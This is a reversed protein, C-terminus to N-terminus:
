CQSNFELLNYIIALITITIHPFRSDIRSFHAKDLGHLCDFRPFALDDLRSRGETPKRTRNGLVHDRGWRCKAQWQRQALIVTSTSGHVRGVRKVQIVVVTILIVVRGVMPEYRGIQHGWHRWRWWWSAVESLYSRHIVWLIIPLSFILNYPERPPLPFNNTEEQTVEFSIQKVRKQPYKEMWIRIKLRAMKAIRSGYWWPHQPHNINAQSKKIKNDSM